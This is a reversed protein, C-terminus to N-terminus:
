KKAMDDLASLAKTTKENGKAVELLVAKVEGAKNQMKADVLLQKLREVLQNLASEPLATKMLPKYHILVESLAQERDKQQAKLVKSEAETILGKQSEYLWYSVEDLKSGAYIALEFARLVTKSDNKLAAVKATMECFEAVLEPPLKKKGELSSYCSEMISKYKADDGAALAARLAEIDRPIRKEHGSAIRKMVTNMYESALYKKDLFDPLTKDNRKATLSYLPDGFYILKWPTYFNEGMKRRLSFGMPYGAMADAFSEKPPRFADLLPERYSGYFIFAGNKIWRGAITNHSYTNGTSNSHIYSVVTPLTLPVDEHTAGRGKMSWSTQGGSSNCHVLSARNIATFKNRWTVLNADEMINEVKYGAETLAEEAFETSYTGWSGSQSYTNFLFADEFPLFLSCNAQYLKYVDDGILRGGFGWRSDDDNRFLADDVATSQKDYRSFLNVGVPIDCAITFYDLDDFYQKYSLGTSDLLELFKDKLANYEKESIVKVPDQVSIMSMIMTQFHGAALMAAAPVGTGKMDAFVIGCAKQEIAKRTEEYTRRDAKAFENTLKPSLAATAAGWVLEPTVATSSSPPAFYVRKPKFKEIFAPVLYDDWLLIPFMTDADWRGLLDLVSPIDAAIYLDRAVSRLKAARLNYDKAYELQRLSNVMHVLMADDPFDKQMEDLVKRAGEIDDNKLASQFSGIVRTSGKMYEGYDRNDITGTLSVGVFKALKELIEKNSLNLSLSFDQKGDKYVLFSPGKDKFENSGWGFLTWVKVWNYSDRIQEFQKCSFLLRERQRMQYAFDYPLAYVVLPKDTYDKIVNNSASLWPISVMSDAGVPLSSAFLLLAIATIFPCLRKM